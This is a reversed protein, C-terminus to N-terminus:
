LKLIMKKIKKQIKLNRIKSKKRKTLTSLNKM